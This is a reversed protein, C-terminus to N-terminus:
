SLHILLDTITFVPDAPDEGICIKVLTGDKKAVVGHIALPITVWQYKKIGGYYHTDLYALGSDEYLPNQKLDLRPSDIHACLINMGAELPEEGLRFLVITKKMGTAYVKDQPKLPTHSQLLEELNRYGAAEALQITKKVCERETKGENLFQKYNETIRELEKEQLEDYSLWAIPREM